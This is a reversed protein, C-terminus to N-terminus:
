YNIQPYPTLFLLRNAIEGPKIFQYKLPLGVHSLKIKKQNMLNKGYRMATM